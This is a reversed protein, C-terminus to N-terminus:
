NNEKDVKQKKKANSIKIKPIILVCYAMLTYNIGNKNLYYVLSNNKSNVSEENDFADSMNKIIKANPHIVNIELLNYNINAYGYMNPTFLFSIPYLLLAFLTKSVATKILLTFFHDFLKNAPLGKAIILYAAPSNLIKDWIDIIQKRNEDGGTYYKNKMVDKINNRAVQWARFTYEDLKDITAPHYIIGKRNKYWSSVNVVYKDYYYPVLLLNSYYSLWLDTLDVFYDYKHFAIAESNIELPHLRKCRLLTYSSIDDENSIKGTLHIQSLTDIDLILDTNLIFSNLFTNYDKSKMAIQELSTIIKRDENVKKKGEKKEEKNKEEKEKDKKEEKEKDKKEKEEKYKNLLNLYKDDADDYIFDDKLEFNEKIENEKILNQLEKYYPYSINYNSVIPTYKRAQYIEGSSEKNSM